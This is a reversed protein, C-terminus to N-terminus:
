ESILPKRRIIAVTNPDMPLRGFGYIKCILLEIMDRIFFQVRDKLGSYGNRIPRYANRYAYVVLDCEACIQSLIGGSITSCHTKDGHQWALGFPSQGNPFRALIQGDKTLVSAIFKLLAKLDNLPLHEFVDLAVVLDFSEEAINVVQQAIGYRTDFGKNAGVEALEEILECGSIIAGQHVAWSFFSGNGFGIEFVRTGGLKISYFEGSFNLADYKDYSFLSDWKKWEVYIKYNIDTM